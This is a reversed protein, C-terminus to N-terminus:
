EERRCALGETLPRGDRQCRDLVVNQLKQDASGAADDGTVLQHGGEVLAPRRREVTGQVDVDAMQSLLKAPTPVQDSGNAPHTVQEAAPWSGVLARSIRDIAALIRSQDSPINARDRTPKQAM